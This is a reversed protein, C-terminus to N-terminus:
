PCVELAQAAREDTYEFQNGSFFSRLHFIYVADPLAIQMLAPPPTPPGSHRKPKSEIDFGVVSAAKSHFLQTAQEYISSSTKSSGNAGMDQSREATSCGQCFALIDKVAESAQGPSQIFSTKGEWQQRPMTSIAARDIDRKYGRLASPITIHAHTSPQAPVHLQGWAPTLHDNFTWLGSCLRSYVSNHNSTTCQGRHVYHRRAQPWLRPM